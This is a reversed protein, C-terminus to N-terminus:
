QGSIQPTARRNNATRAYKTPLLRLSDGTQRQNEAKAKNWPKICHISISLSLKPSPVANVTKRNTNNAAAEMARASDPRLNEGFNLFIGHLM